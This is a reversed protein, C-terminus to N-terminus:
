YWLRIMRIGFADGHLLIGLFNM